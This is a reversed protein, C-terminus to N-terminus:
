MQKDRGIDRRVHDPAALGGRGEKVDRSEALGCELSVLGIRGGLYRWFTSTPALARM